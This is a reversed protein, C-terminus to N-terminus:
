LLLQFIQTKYSKSNKLQVFIIPQFKFHVIFLEMFEKISKTLDKITTFTKVDKGSLVDKSNNKKNKM